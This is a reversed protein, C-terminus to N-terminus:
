RRSSGSAIPPRLAARSGSGGAAGIGYHWELGAALTPAIDLYAVTVAWLGGVVTSSARRPEGALARECAETSGLVTEGSRGVARTFARWRVVDAAVDAAITALGAHLLGTAGTAARRGAAATAAVVRDQEGAFVRLDDRCLRGEHWAAVYPHGGLGCARRALELEAWLWETRPSGGRSEGANMPNCAFCM